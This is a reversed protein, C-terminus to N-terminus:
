QKSKEKQSDSIRDWAERTMVVLLEKKCDWISVNKQSIVYHQGWRAYKSYLKLTCIDTASILDGTESLHSHMTSIILKDEVKGYEIPIINKHLRRKDQLKNSKNFTLLYDNGFVVIGQKKPGTLIYVRKGQEDNLPILNPSMDKYAKFLTDTRLENLASQRITFLDFEQQSLEREQGNTIATKVNYTSDFSFTALVKPKVDKSFFLCISRNDNIYSFYGGANQQKDSFKEIFIDTGYWSAMETKYLKTGEKIIENEEKSQGFSCTAISIILITLATNKM